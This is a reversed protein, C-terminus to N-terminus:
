KFIYTFGFKMYGYKHDFTTQTYRNYLYPIEGNFQRYMIKGGLSVLVRKSWKYSISARVIHNSNLYGLGSDRFYRDYEYNFEYIFDKFERSFNFGLFLAKESRDLVKYLDYGKGKALRIIEDTTTITNKITTKKYGIYYDFLYKDGYFGSLARIYYTNDYTDKMLIYPDNKLPTYTGKFLAYYGKTRPGPDNKDIKHIGDSYLLKADTGPLVRKIMDNIGNTDRLYFNDMSDKKYGVDLSIGSNFFAFSDELLHYRLYFDYKKNTLTNGIYDLGTLSFNFNLQLNDRIGYRLKLDYGNLDGISGFKKGISSLEKKKFNFIDVTDNLLRYSLALELSSKKISLTHMDSMAYRINKAEALTLFLFLAFLVRIYRL